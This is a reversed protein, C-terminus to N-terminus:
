RRYLWKLTAYIKDTSSEYCDVKIIFTNDKDGYSLLHIYDDDLLNEGNLEIETISKVSITRYFETDLVDINQTPKRIGRNKETYKDYNKLNDGSNQTIKLKLEELLGKSYYIAKYNKHAESSLKMNNNIIEIFPFIAISLIAISIIIEVLTFGRKKM